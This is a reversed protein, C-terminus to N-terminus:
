REIILKKTERKGNIEVTLVYVGNPLNAVDFQEYYNGKSRSRNKVFTTGVNLNTLSTLSVSVKGNEPVYYDVEFSNKLPNPWVMLGNIPNQELEFQELNIRLPIGGVPAGGGSDGNCYRRDNASFM